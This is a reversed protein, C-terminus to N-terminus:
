ADKEEGYKVARSVTSYHVEFQAAIEKMTHNGTQYEEFM